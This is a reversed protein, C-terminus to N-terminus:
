RVWLTLEESLLSEKFGEQRAYDILPGEQGPHLGVLIAGPPDKSLFEELEDESIVRFAQRQDATLLHGTRWAFVGTAFEAYIEAGGDLPYIPTLTLVKAEPSASQIEKGLRHVQLPYWSRPNGLRAINPADDIFYVSSLVVVQLFLVLPWTIRQSSLENFRALGYLIGVIAFPVPSFYYQNFTPTPLLAGIGLFPIILLILLPEVPAQRKKRYEVISTTYAFFIMALFLLLNGPQNLVKTRLHDMKEVLGMPGIFGTEERFATNLQAYTVNGFIFERPAIAFLFLSPTLGLIMGLCFALLTKLRAKPTIIGPFNFLTVFFPIAVLLFTLRTGIALGILGGSILTWIAPNERESGHVHVSFALLVLLIPLDHNWALGSTYAFLPNALLLIVGGASATMRISLRQGRFFNYSIWFILVISAMSFVVSVARAGLLSYDTVKDVLAYVFILNPMHFYPYDRYPLLTQEALLEGSAVFQNEDRNYGRQMARGWILLFSGGFLIAITLYLLLRKLLVSM